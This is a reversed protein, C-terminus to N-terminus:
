DETAAAIQHGYELMEDESLLVGRSSPPVKSVYRKLVSELSWQDGSMQVAANSLGEVASREYAYIPEVVRSSYPHAYFQEAEEPSRLVVKYRDESTPAIERAFDQFSVTQYKPFGELQVWDVTLHETDLVAVFKEENAEGFNQQFPSGVYYQNPAFKQWKHVHGLFAIDAQEMAKKPIGTLSQGSNMQCGLVQFHGLFVVVQFDHKAERISKRIWEAAESDNGPFACAVVATNHNLPIIERVGVVHFRRDFMRGIHIDGSRVMQEHNGILKINLKSSPLKSIGELVADATAIPIANRDDTTDGLDWVAQCGHSKALNSVQDYFKRVRFQQLSITPNSFCREHGETAQLDSYLLVRM